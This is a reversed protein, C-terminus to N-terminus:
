VRRLVAVTSVMDVGGMNHVIGVDRPEIKYPSKGTLQNYIEVLQYLGSAGLTNGRAKLGGSMNILVKSDFYGEKVLALAKGLGCLGLSEVALVGFISYSDHVEAVGVDSPKIGAMKYVVESARRTSYLTTLDDRWAFLTNNPASYVSAVEVDTRVKDTNCLIVAAAGDAVPAVDYLRLPSAVVESEVVDKVTARKRMYANPNASGKSHMNVVWEALDEYEYGFKRLYQDAMLAALSTPIAGFYAEYDSHLLASLLTNLETSVIDHPKDVGVVGICDYAGSKVALFANYLALGGSGDGAEVRIALIDKLGLEAMAYSGFLLQKSVQEVTMSAVYVVDPSVGSADIASLLAQALLSSPTRDYHRGPVVAGVGAIGVKSDPMVRKSM